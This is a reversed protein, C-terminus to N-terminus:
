KVVVFSNGYDGSRGACSPDNKWHTGDLVFKYEHRGPPLTLALSYYGDADPGEMAQGAPQWDNFFGALYVKEAPETPRYRFTVRSKGDPQPEIKPPSLRLDQDAAAVNMTGLMMEEWTQDGWYVVATPDPNLPNEASNDFHGEMDVVTGQPLRPPTEFMYVNQWNFDYRPVDLLIENRGDPYRATVRFSKGRYHMHPTLCYVLLDRPAEYKAKVVYDPDGPPILFKPNIAATTTVERVVEKPDAFFVGAESVDTQPSGNPTYHVQFVFKSGAPVRVAQTPPGVIPPMGPAFAAVARFLADEGRWKGKREPPLSFMIIHHVVERNGPRAEAGRIWVDEAFGPDVVFYKYEVTGQAPVEFPEPMKYIADPQGMQWGDTFEPLPPAKALDGSPTGAEVWQRFLEKQEDAMRADNHFKGYAPNAHWPPMRSQDITELATEAWAAADDYETLAFPAIEGPRHCKVCHENLIPAVHEAYTVAGTAVAERPPSILCGVAETRPLDIPAGTMLADIASRLHETTAKLRASGVGYQDDIRGRYRVVRDADLVFAEPTRTAGFQAAIKGGPDKLVPFKIGHKNAYVAIEQLSDQQNANVGVIQVGQDRYAVDFEALRAGYLKALPCETGLFVVVVVPKDHWDALSRKAGLHDHLTFDAIRQERAVTADAGRGSTVVFVISAGVALSLLGRRLSSRMRRM